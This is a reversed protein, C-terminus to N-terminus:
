IYGWVKQLRFAGAGGLEDSRQLYQLYFQTRPRYLMRVIRSFSNPSNGSPSSSRHTFSTFPGITVLVPM